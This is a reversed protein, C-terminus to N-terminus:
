AAKRHSSKFSEMWNEFKKVFASHSMTFELRAATAGEAKLVRAKFELNDKQNSEVSDSPM